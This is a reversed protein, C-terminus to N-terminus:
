EHKKGTLRHQTRSTMPEDRNAWIKISSVIDFLFEKQCYDELDLDKFTSDNTIDGLPLPDDLTLRPTDARLHVNGAPSAASSSPPAPASPPSVQDFISKLRPLPRNDLLFGSDDATENMVEEYSPPNTPMRSEKVDRQNQVPTVPEEVEQVTERRVDEEFTNEFEDQVYFKKMEDGESEDLEETVAKENDEKEEEGKPKEGRRESKQGVGEEEEEEKDETLTTDEEKELDPTVVEESVDDERPTYPEPASPREEMEEKIEGTPTVAEVERLNRLEEEEKEHEWQTEEHVNLENQYVNNDIDALNWGVSSSRDSSPSQRAVVNKEGFTTSSSEEEHGAQEEIFKKLYHAIGSSLRRASEPDLSSRGSRYSEEPSHPNKPFGVDSKFPVDRQLVIGSLMRNLDDVTIPLGSPQPTGPIGEEPLLLNPKASAPVEEAVEPVTPVAAEEAGVAEVAEQPESVGPETTQTSRDAPAPTYPCTIGRLELKEITLRRPVWSTM